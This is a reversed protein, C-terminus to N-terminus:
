PRKYEKKFSGEYSSDSMKIKAKTLYRNRRSQVLSVRDAQGIGIIRGLSMDLTHNIKLEWVKWNFSPTREGPKTTGM